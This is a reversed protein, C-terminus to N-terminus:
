EKLSKFENLNKKLSLFAMIIRELSSNYIDVPHLEDHELYNLSEEPLSHLLNYAEPLINGDEKISRKIIM